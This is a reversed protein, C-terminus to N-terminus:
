ALWGSTQAIKHVQRTGPRVMILFLEVAPHPFESSEICGATVKFARPACTKTDSHEPDCRLSSPMPASGGTLKWSPLRSSADEVTLLFMRRRRRACEPLSGSEAAADDELTDTAALALCQLSLRKPVGM